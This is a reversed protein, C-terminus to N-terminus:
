KLFVCPVLKEKNEANSELAVLVPTPNGNRSVEGVGPNGNGFGLKEGARVQGHIRAQVMGGIAVLISAGDKKGDQLTIGAKRVFIGICPEQPNRMKAVKGSGDITLFDGESFVDQNFRDLAICIAGGEESTLGGRFIALGEALLSMGSGKIEQINAPLYLAWNRESIFVATEKERSRAELAHEHNSIASLAPNKEATVILGGQMGAAWGSNNTVALPFLKLNPPTFGQPNSTETNQELTLPGEHDNLQHKRPAYDHSHPLPERPDSLRPDNAEVAYGASAIGPKALQIIGPREYNALQIRPDNSQLAKLPASENPRAFQVRGKRNEDGETLRPDDAQLAKHAATEDHNALQVIGPWATSATRLRKDNGQVVEGSHTSGDSALKVIGAASESAMKLRADNAQVALGARSDGNKALQVIGAYDETATRLRPDDAQVAVSGRVEGHKALQVIGPANESAAKLRSDNAQVALKADTQGDRALQVIGPYETGAVKLRTDNAQVARNPATSNNEALLVIGPLMESAYTPEYAKERGPRLVNEASAFVALELIRALYENKKRAFTEYIWLKIHRAKTPAIDWHYWTLPSAIFDSENIIPQWVNRDLSVAITFGPPFCTPTEKTSLLGLRSIYYPKSLDIEIFEEEPKESLASSWGYDERGDILNEPVWLRDASSSAKFRIDAKLSLKLDSIEAHSILSDKASFNIQLFQARLLPLEFAFQNGHQEQGIIPSRTYAVGDQSVFIAAKPTFNCQFEVCNFVASTKLELTFPLVHVSQGGTYSFSLKGGSLKVQGTSGGAQVIPIEYPRTIEAPESPM